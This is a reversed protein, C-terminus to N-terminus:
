PPANGSTPNGIEPAVRSFWGCLQPVLGPRADFGLDLDPPFGVHGGRLTRRLEVHPPLGRLRHEVAHLPVMPDGDSIVMLVPVRIQALHEGVCASRYYDDVDRFGHRVVVTHTDWERLKGIHRLASLPALEPRRTAVEDYIQKLGDLVHKRYPWSRRRDIAASCRALDLPPCVAAVARVRVDSPQRMSQLTIHGGLSFGVVAM